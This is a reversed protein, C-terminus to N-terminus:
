QAAETPVEADPVENAHQGGDEGPAAAPKSMDDYPREGSATIGRAAPSLIKTSDAAMASMSVVLVAAIALAVEMMPDEETMGCLGRRFM